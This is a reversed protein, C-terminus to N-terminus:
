ATIESKAFFEAERVKSSAYLDVAKLQEETLGNLVEIAKAVEPKSIDKFFFDNVSINNM